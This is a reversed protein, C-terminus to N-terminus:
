KSGVFFFVQQDYHNHINVGTGSATLTDQNLSANGSFHYTATDGSVANNENITASYNPILLVNKLTSFTDFSGFNNVILMMRVTTNSVKTVIVTNIVYPAGLISDNYTGVWNVTNDINPNLSTNSKKCSSIMIILLLSVLGYKRM